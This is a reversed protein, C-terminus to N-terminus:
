NNIVYFTRSTTTLMEKKKKKKKKTDNGWRTRRMFRVPLDFNRFFFSLFFIWKQERKYIVKRVILM